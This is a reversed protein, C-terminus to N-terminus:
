YCKFKGSAEGNMRKFELQNVNAELRSVNHQCVYIGYEKMLCNLIKSSNPESRALRPVSSASRRIIEPSKFRGPVEDLSISSLRASKIFMISCNMASNYCSLKSVFFVPSAFKLTKNSREVRDLGWCIGEVGAFWCWSVGAAM